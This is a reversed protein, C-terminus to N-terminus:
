RQHFQFSHHTLHAAHVVDGHMLYLGIIRRLLIFSISFLSETCVYATIIAPPPHVRRQGIELFSVGLCNSGRSPLSVKNWLVTERSSCIKGGWLIKTTVTASCARSICFCTGAM